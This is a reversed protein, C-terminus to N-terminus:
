EYLRELERVFAPLGGDRLEHVKRLTVRTTWGWTEIGCDQLYGHAEDVEASTMTAEAIDLLEGVSVLGRGEFPDEVREPVQQLGYVDMRAQAM